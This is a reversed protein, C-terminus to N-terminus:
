GRPRLPRSVSGPISRYSQRRGIGACESLGTERGPWLHEPAPGFLAPRQRFRLMPSALPLASSKSCIFDPWHPLSRSSTQLEKFSIKLHFYHADYNNREPHDQKGGWHNVPLIQRLVPVEREPHTHDTNRLLYVALRGLRLHDM